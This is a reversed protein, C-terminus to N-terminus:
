RIEGAEVEELSEEKSRCRESTSEGMEVTSLTGDGIVSLGLASASRVALSSSGVVPFQSAGGKRVTVSVKARGKFLGTILRLEVGNSGASVPRSLLPKVNTGDGLLM